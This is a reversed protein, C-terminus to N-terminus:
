PFDPILLASAVTSTLEEPQLVTVVGGQQWRVSLTLKCLFVFSNNHQVLPKKLCTKGDFIFMARHLHDM